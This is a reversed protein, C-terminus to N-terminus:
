RCFMTNQFRVQLPRPTPYSLDCSPFNVVCVFEKFITKCQPEFNEVSTFLTAMAAEYGAQSGVATNTYIHDKGILGYAKCVQHTYIM